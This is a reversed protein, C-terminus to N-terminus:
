KLKLEVRAGKAAPQDSTIPVVSLRGAPVEGYNVLYQQVANARAIALKRFAEEDVTIQTLLRAKMEDFSLPKIDKVESTTEATGDPKNKKVAELEQRQMAVPAVDRKKRKFAGLNGRQGPAPDDEYGPDGPSLKKPREKPFARYFLRRIMGNKQQPDIQIQDLTVAPDIMRRDNWIINRMQNELAQERVMDADITEDYGGFIDLRLLPREKMAKAIVDLKKIEEDNVPIDEGPLFAQFSLEEGKGDGFMSGLLSFPSTAAKTLLNSVVRWILPGVRFGPDDLGGQVPLDLVIKGSTDRLLAVALRVPLQTADPSNTANGLTFQDITAVNSADVKRKKINCKVDLTLAGRQLEYGAFKGIYPAIPALEMGKMTVKMETFADISLPNTRGSIIVPTVGEIRGRIDVTARSLESSSLGEVSGSLQNLVLRVNPRLSRDTFDVTAKDLVFRDLSVMTDGMLGATPMPAPKNKPFTIQPAPEAMSGSLRLARGFNTTGDNNVILHGAPELWYIETALMKSPENSYELGKIALSRWSALEDTESAGYAAFDDVNLEGQASLMPQKDPPIEAGLYLRTTLVGRKVRIDAFTELYPSLGALSINTLEVGLQAGLPALTVSGAVHVEGDPAYNARFGFQRPKDLEALSLNLLDCSLDSFQHKALRTAVQDEINLNLGRLTIAGVKVNPLSANPVAAPAPTLAVTPGKEPGLGVLTFLEVLDIGGATRRMNVSGGTVTVRRVDASVVPWTAAAESIDIQDLSVVAESQGRPAIRLSTLGAKAESLRLAPEGNEFSFEYHGAINLQGDLLDFRVRSAYYPAYKKLSLKGLEFDGSSKLPAFSVRGKWSMTEGSETTVSFEGPAQGKGGTHFNRLELTTPGLTTGFIEGQSADSYVLRAEAIALRGVAIPWSAKAKKSPEDKQGLKALLDAFNVNGEKDVSVRGEFGDLEIAQFRWEGRVISFTDFNVCLRRWGLFTGEAPAAEALKFDELTLSFVLPNFHVKAVKVERQLMASLRKEMQGQLMSPLVFFGVLTWLIALIGLWFAVRVIVHVRSSSRDYEQRLESLHPINM